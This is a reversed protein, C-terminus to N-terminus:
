AAQIKNRDLFKPLLGAAITSCIILAVGAWALWALREGLLLVAFLVGFVPELAILLGSANASVQNMGRNWLWYALWNCVVGLYLISVGGQWTWNIQTAHFVAANDTRVVIRGCGAVARYLQTCWHAYDIKENPSVCHLIRTWGVFGLQQGIFPEHWRRRTGHWRCCAFVRGCVGVCRM